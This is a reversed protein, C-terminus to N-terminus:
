TSAHSNRSTDHLCVSALPLGVAKMTKVVAVIAQPMLFLVPWESGSRQLQFLVRCIRLVTHVGGM